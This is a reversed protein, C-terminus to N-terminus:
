LGKAEPMTEPAYIGRSGGFLCALAIAAGKEALLKDRCKSANTKGTLRNISNVFL